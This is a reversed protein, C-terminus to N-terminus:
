KGEFTFLYATARTVGLLTFAQHAPGGQPLDAPKDTSAPVDTFDVQDLWVSPKIHLVVTGDSEVEVPTFVCGEVAPNGNANTVDGKTASARFMRTEDDKQAKGEVVVVHSGLSDALEGRRQLTSTCRRRSSRVRSARGLLFSQM